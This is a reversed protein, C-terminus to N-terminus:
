ASPDPETLLAQARQLMRREGQSLGVREDRDSLDAVVEAIQGPDGTKLKAFNAKYRRSWESEEDSEQLRFLDISSPTAVVGVSGSHGFGCVRIEEDKLVVVHTSGSPKTVILRGPEPRMNWGSSASLPLQRRSILGAVAIRQGELPGIGAATGSEDDLYSWDDVADRAVRAGTTTDFVGRGGHTLVLLLSDDYSFGVDTLGGALDARTIAWREAVLELTAASCFIPADPERWVIRM